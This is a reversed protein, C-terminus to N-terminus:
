IFFGDKELLHPGETCGLATGETLYHVQGVLRKLKPDYEQMEIGGFFKGSRHDILMNLFWKKGNSQHFLSGDFGRSHLYVPESWEGRIDTTTVLFQPHREM